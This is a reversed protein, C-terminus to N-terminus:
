CTGPVRNIETPATVEIYRTRHLSKILWSEDDQPEADLTRVALVFSSLILMEPKSSFFAIRGIADSGNRQRHQAGKPLLKNTELRRQSRRRPRKGEPFSASDAPSIM